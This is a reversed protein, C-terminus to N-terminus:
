TITSSGKRHVFGIQWEGYELEDSKVLEFVSTVPKFVDRDIYFGYPQDQALVDGPTFRFPGGGFEKNIDASSFDDIQTTVLVYCDISVEGKFMNIPFKREVIPARSVLCERFYTERCSAIAVYAARQKEIEERIEECSLAYEVRLTLTQDRIVPDASAQFEVGNYDDSEPRLVPYPFAKQPDFKM